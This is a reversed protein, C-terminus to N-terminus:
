AEEAHVIGTNCVNRCITKPQPTTNGEREGSTWTITKLFEQTHKPDNDHQFIGRGLKQLSPTMKDAMIKTYGCVNMTGDIFTMEGVGKASLCGWIM